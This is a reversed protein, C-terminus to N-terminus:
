SVFNPIGDTTGIGSRTLYSPSVALGIGFVCKMLIFDLSGGRESSEWSYESVSSSGLVSVGGTGRNEQGSSPHTFLTDFIKRRVAGDPCQFVHVHKPAHLVEQCLLVRSRLYVVLATWHYVM